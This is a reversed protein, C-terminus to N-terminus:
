DTSRVYSNTKVMDTSIIMFRVQLISDESCVAYKLNGHTSIHHDNLAKQSHTVQQCIGCKFNCVHKRKVLAVIKIVLGGKGPVSKTTTNNVENRIMRALQNLPINDLPDGTDEPM